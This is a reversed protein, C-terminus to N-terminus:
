WSSSGESYWNSGKMNGGEWFAVAFANPVIKQLICSSWALEICTHIKYVRITRYFSTGLPFIHCRTVGNLLFLINRSLIHVCVICYKVSQLSNLRWSFTMSSKWLQSHSPKATTKCVYRLYLVTNMIGRGVAAAWGSCSCAEKVILVLSPLHKVAQKAITQITPSSWVPSLVSDNIEISKRNAEKGFSLLLLLLM